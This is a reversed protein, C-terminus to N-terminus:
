IYLIFDMNGGFGKNIIKKYNWILMGLTWLLRMSDCQPSETEVMNEQWGTIITFLQLYLVIHSYMTYVFSAQFIVNQLTAPLRVTWTAEVLPLSIAEALPLRIVAQHYVLLRCQHSILPSGWHLLSCLKDQENLSLCGALYM